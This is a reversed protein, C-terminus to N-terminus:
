MNIGMKIDKWRRLSKGFPRKGEPKGVLVTLVVGKREDVHGVQGAWGTSRSQWLKRRTVSEPFFITFQKYGHIQTSVLSIQKTHVSSRRSFSPRRSGDRCVKRKHMIWFCEGNPVVLIDLVCATYYENVTYITIWYFFLVVYGCCFQFRM